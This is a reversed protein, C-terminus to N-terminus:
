YLPDESVFFEVDHALNDDPDFLMAEYHGDSLEVQIMWAGTSDATIDGSYALLLNPDADDDDDDRSWIQISGTQGAGGTGQVFIFGQQGTFIPEVVEGEAPSVILWPFWAPNADSRSAAWLCMFAAFVVVAVRLKHM